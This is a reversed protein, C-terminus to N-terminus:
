NVSEAASVSPLVHPVPSEVKVSQASLNTSRCPTRMSPQANESVRDQLVRVRCCAFGVGVGFEQGAKAPDSAKWQQPASTGLGIHNIWTQRVEHFSLWVRPVPAPRRIARTRSRDGPTLVPNTFQPCSIMFGRHVFSRGLWLRAARRIAPQGKPNACIENGSTQRFPYIPMSRQWLGVSCGLASGGSRKGGKRPSPLLTQPPVTTGAMM